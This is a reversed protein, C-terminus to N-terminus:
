PSTTALCPHSDGASNVSITATLWIVGPGIPIFEAVYTPYVATIFAVVEGQIVSLMGYGGGFSFLGIKLVTYFLEIFIMM